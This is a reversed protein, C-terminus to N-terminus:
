VVPCNRGVVDYKEIEKVLKVGNHRCPGFGQAEVLSEKVGVHAVWSEESVFSVRGLKHALLGVWYVDIGHGMKSNIALEVSEELVDFRELAEIPIMNVHFTHAMSQYAKVGRLDLQLGQPNEHPRFCTTMGQKLGKDALGGQMKQLVELWGRAFMIDDEMMVVSDFLNLDDKVHRLVERWSVAFGRHPMRKVRIEKKELNELEDLKEKSESGDDFVALPMKTTRWYSEVANWLFGPREYTLMVGVPHECPCGEPKEVQRTAIYDEVRM